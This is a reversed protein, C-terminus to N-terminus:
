AQYKLFIVAVLNGPYRVVELQKLAKEKIAYVNSQDAKYESLLRNLSSFPM